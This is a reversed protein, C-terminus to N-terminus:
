RGTEQLDSQHSESPMALLAIYRPKYEIRQVDNTITQNFLSEMSVQLHQWIQDSEQKNM